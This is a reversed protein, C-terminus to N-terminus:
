LVRLKRMTAAALRDFKEVQGAPWERWPPFPTSTIVERDKLSNIRRDLMAQVRQHDLGRLGVFEAVRQIERAAPRTYDLPGASPPCNRSSACTCSTSPPGTTACKEFRSLHEWEQYAARAARHPRLYDSTDLHVPLKAVTERALPTLDGPDRCERYISGFKKNHWDM